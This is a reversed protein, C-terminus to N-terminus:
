GNSTHSESGAGAEARLFAKSRPRTIFRTLRRLKTATSGTIAADSDGALPLAAGFRKADGATMRPLEGADNRKAPLKRQILRQKRLEGGHTAKGHEEATLPRAHQLLCGVGIAREPEKMGGPRREGHPDVGAAVVKGFRYEGIDVAPDHILDASRGGGDM